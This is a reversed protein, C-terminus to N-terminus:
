EADAAMESEVEGALQRVTLVPIPCDHVVTEAVSGLHYSYPSDRGRTGTAVLDADVDTAYRQIVAAPDGREVVTTVPYDHERELRALADRVEAEHEGNADNLVSLVHVEAGFREAIDLATEVARGASTSGDTAIVVTEFM